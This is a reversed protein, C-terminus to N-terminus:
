ISGNIHHRASLYNPGDRLYFKNIDTAGSREKTLLTGATVMAKVPLRDADLTAARLRKADDGPPHREIAAALLDRIMALGHRHDESPLAFVVAAACLHLTITTFLDILPETDTVLIRRDALLAPDADPPTAGDFAAHLRDVRLRPGDNDKLLLRIRDQGLVLSVNQQHSELAMGYRLLLTTQFDLLPALYGALLALRDGGFYRDALDTTVAPVM